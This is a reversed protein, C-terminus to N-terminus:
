ICNHWHCTQRPLIDDILITTLLILPFDRKSRVGITIKNRKWFDYSFLPIMAKQRKTFSSAIIIFSNNNKNVHKNTQTKTKQKTTTTTQKKKKM